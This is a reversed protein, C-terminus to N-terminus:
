ITASDLTKKKYDILNSCDFLNSYDIDRCDFDKCWFSVTTVLWGRFRVLKSNGKGFLTLVTGLNICNKTTTVLRIYITLTEVILSYAM